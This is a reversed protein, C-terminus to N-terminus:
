RSRRRSPCAPPSFGWIALMFVTSVVEWSVHAHFQSTLFQSGFGGFAAVIMPGVMGYAIVMLWGSLFGGTAGLGHSNYTYAFGASPLKRAFAAISNAVLLCAIMAFVISLPLAFGAGAAAAPTNYAVSIAPGMFAMCMVVSGFVGISNAKLAAPRVKELMTM